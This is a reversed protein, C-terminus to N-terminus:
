LNYYKYGIIVQFYSTNVLILLFTVPVDIQDKLIRHVSIGKQVWLNVNSLMICYLDFPIIKICWTWDRTTWINKSFRGNINTNIRKFNKFRPSDLFAESSRRLWGFEESSVTERLAPWCNWVSMWGILILTVHFLSSALLNEFSVNQKQHSIKKKWQVYSLFSKHTSWQSKRTIYYNSVICCLCMLSLPCSYAFIYM